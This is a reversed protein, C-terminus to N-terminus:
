LRSEMMKSFGAFLHAPRRPPEPFAALLRHKEEEPFVAAAGGSLFPVSSFIGSQRHPPGSSTANELRRSSTYCLDPAATIAAPASM